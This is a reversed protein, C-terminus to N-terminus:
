ILLISLEKAVVVNTLHFLTAIVGIMQCFGSRFQHTINPRTM